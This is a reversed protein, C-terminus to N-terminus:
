PAQEIVAILEDRRYGASAGPPGVALLGRPM